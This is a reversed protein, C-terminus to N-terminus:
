EEIDEESINKEPLPESSYRKQTKQPTRQNQTQDPPLVHPQQYITKESDPRIVQQGNPSYTQNPWPPQTWPQMVYQHIIVQQPVQPIPDEKVQALESWLDWQAIAEEDASEEAKIHKYVKYRYTTFFAEIIGNIYATILFLIIILLLFIIQIVWIDDIGIWTGLYMLWLPVGFVIIINIIFRLHLIFDVVIYKITINFHEIATQMSQKMADFFKMDELAIFFRTYPLLFAAMLIISLRILMLTVILFNSGIDMIYIRSVAALFIVINFFSIAADFEFMQLFKTMGKGLSATWKKRPNNLYYIMAWEWIPPLVSYGILLAIAVLIILAIPLETVYTAINVFFEVLVNEDGWQAKTLVHSSRYVIYLLFFVSHVFTTVTALRILKTDQSIEEFASQLITKEM